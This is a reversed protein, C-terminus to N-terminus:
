GRDFFESVAAVVSEAQEVTMGPFMPLSLLREAHRESVPFAGRRHGLHAYADTLHVPDPYHRGTGIGRERLHDALELPRETRIVFLHWVPSSDPPTPPLEIDGVGDLRERYLAAITRRDANAEDLLPLKALLVLAQITDLRATYGALAHDYKARQGHERLARVTAAVNEDDTTLAGADGFAGLNKGPYFSFAAADGATGARIGHRVAGHAQCADELVKLGHSEAVRGLALMDAMQGYLHVPLIFRTRPSVAAEVQEVDINWDDDSMDVVVPRGGSQTVAELTAIFTNAPVIVEDGPEIGLAVLGLRLADLGSSLGVTTRTGIYATFAQEFEGVAPGNAFANSDILSAFADLLDDKIADHQISLDLFPVTTGTAAQSM